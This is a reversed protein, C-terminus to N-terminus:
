RDEPCEGAIRRYVSRAHEYAAEAEALEAPAYSSAKQKWCQEVAALCWAASNRSARVPRGDVLVKVPNSHASPFHRVAVWSSRTIVPAPFVVRTPTGDGPVSRSAVPLGNVILEIEQAGGNDRRIAANVAFSGDDLRQFDMLHATGDSVYSDGRRLAEAWRDFELAGDLRVYVRGIGVREGSMCPFDTEGSAVVDFGCNLAHYWINWEAERPTNMTAIFDIAPVKVGDPGDVQHTVDVIFEMAGIGDFAPLNFHPLGHPGDVGPTRGIHTTLGGGSHATGTVAGQRKAWKLTNLGLTPWHTISDGGEPIQRRLKLLNLHGSIHSGFGSVEVDYRLLHPPRSHDDPRGKFFQKQYDFCPGWTLCCGVKIDEGMIQRLMDPPHVGQTPNNYHLCGAAHIHHDGSWYGRKATDIWRRVQYSLTLPREAVDITRTEPISEPGRSCRISYRGPALRIVEGTERYIQSQFFFDPALRKAQSPYVRGRTDRIEFAAMCPTGDADRVDFTVPVGPVIRFSLPLSVWEAGDGGTYELDMWDIRTEGPQIGPDLRLGALEGVCEFEVEHLRSAGAELPFSVQRQADPLPLEPTTWFLQGTSGAGCTAAFRLVMRGGRAPVAAFMSPDQGSSRFLLSGDTTEITGQNIAIWGDAGRNFRWSRVLPSKQGPLGGISFEIRANKEGAGVASLQVIRYELALGSLDAALPRGDYVSLGMWRDEVESAPAHPRSRAAPSDVRLRSTAGAHNVVKVLVTRWANEGVEIGRLAPIADIRGDAGVEVAAICRKDLLDQIRRTIDADDALAACADLERLEDAALPEGLSELAEALRRCQVLLPQSAVERVFPLELPKLPGDPSGHGPHAPLSVCMAAFVASGIISRIMRSLTFPKELWPWVDSPIAGSM